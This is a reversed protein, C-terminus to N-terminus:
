ALLVFTAIYAYLPRKKYICFIVALVVFFIVENSVIWLWSLCERDVRPKYVSALFVL